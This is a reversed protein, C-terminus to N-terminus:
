NRALDTPACDFARKFCRNFYSIDNFGSALAIEAVTATETGCRMELLRDRALRLRRDRIFATVTVGISEFDVQLTRLSIGLRSAVWHPSLDAETLHRDILIQALELRGGCRENAAFPQAFSAPAFASRIAQLLLQRLQPARHDAAGTRLMKTVLARLMISMPDDATLRHSIEIDRPHGSLLLQRPLHVSLHNSFRGDFHFEVPRASDVLICDGPTIATQRGFQEIGCSGELQLLLFLHERGDLRIDRQRRSVSHVDAAVQVVEMGGASLVATGGTVVDTEHVRQPNFSGCVSQLRAAWEDFCTRGWIDPMWTRFEQLQMDGGIVMNGTM